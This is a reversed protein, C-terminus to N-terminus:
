VLEQSSSWHLKKKYWKRNKRLSTYYSSMQDSLEVGKKTKNYDMVCQPKKEEGNRSVKGTADHQPVTSLIFVNIKDKWNFVKIVKGNEFSAIDGKKIKAKIVKKPLGKCSVCVTSWIYIFQWHITYGREWAFTVDFYTWRHTTDHFLLINRMPHSAVWRHAFMKLNGTRKPTTGSSVWRRESQQSSGCQFSSLKKSVCHPLARWAALRLWRTLQIYNCM